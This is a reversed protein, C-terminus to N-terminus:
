ILLKMLMNKLYKQLFIVKIGTSFFVNHQLTFDKQNKKEDLCDIVEYSENDDDCPFSFHFESVRLMTIADDINPVAHCSEVATKDLLNYKEKFAQM